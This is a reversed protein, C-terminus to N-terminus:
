RALEQAHGFAAVHLGHNFQVSSAIPQQMFKEIARVPDTFRVPLHQEFDLVHVVGQDPADFRHSGAGTAFDVLEPLPLAGYQSTAAAPPSKFNPGAACGSILAALCMPILRVSLQRRKM